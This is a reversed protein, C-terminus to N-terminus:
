SATADGAGHDRDVSIDRFTRALLSSGCYRKRLSFLPSSATCLGDARLFEASFFFPHPRNGASGLFSERLAWTAHREV